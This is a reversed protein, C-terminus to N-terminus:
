YAHKLGVGRCIYNLYFSEPIVHFYFPKFKYFGIFSKPISKIHAIDVISLSTEDVSCIGDTIQEQLNYIFFALDEKTQNNFVYHYTEGNNKNYETVTIQIKTDPNKVPMIDTKYSIRDDKILDEKQIDYDLSLM